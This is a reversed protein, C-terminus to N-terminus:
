HAQPVCFRGSHFASLSGDFGGALIRPALEYAHNPALTVASHCAVGFAGASQEYIPFGDLPMVRFGTWTRVINVSALAPFAEVARRAIVATLSQNTLISESLAESSSGIKIGGEDGQCILVSAYPFFPACRETVLVQGKDRKLPCAMGVMPALRQNGVGAALVVKEAWAEGWDGRVRFGSSSPEIERVGHDPLYRCGRKVMAAHLAFFLRLPNVHGDLRCFISGHVAPGIAPIRQRTQRQDLVEFEAVRGGTERAIRERDAVQQELEPRSMCFSLGGQQRLAVDIGTEAELESAFQPWREAASRCWLAYAPMGVGKGQVFVLAFNARSARLALDGEDLVLPKVGSRALGWAVAAGAVGGGIVMCEHRGLDVM